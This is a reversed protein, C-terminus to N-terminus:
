YAHTNTFTATSLFDDILGMMMLKPSFRWPKNMTMVLSGAGEFTHLFGHSFFRRFIPYAQASKTATTASLFSSNCFLINRFAIMPFTTRNFKYLPMVHSQHRRTQIMRSRMAQSNQIFSSIPHQAHRTMRKRIGATIDGFMTKNPRLVITSQRLWVFVHMMDIGICHIISRFIKNSNFM